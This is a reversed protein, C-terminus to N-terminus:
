SVETQDYGTVYANLVGDANTVRYFGLGGSTIRMSAHVVDKGNAGGDIAGVLKGDGGTGAVRVRAECAVNGTLVFCM